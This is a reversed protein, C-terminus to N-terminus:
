SYILPEELSQGLPRTEQTRRSLTDYSYNTRQSEPDTVSTLNSAADYSYQTIANLSQQNEAQGLKRLSVAM